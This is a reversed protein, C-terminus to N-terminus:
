KDFPFIFCLKGNELPWSLQQEKLDTSLPKKEKPKKPKNKKNPLDDKEKKDHIIIIIM